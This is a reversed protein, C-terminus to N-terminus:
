CLGGAKTRTVSALVQQALSSHWQRAGRQQTRAHCVVPVLLLAIPLLWLLLLWLLGLLLGLLLLLLRRAGALLPVPPL